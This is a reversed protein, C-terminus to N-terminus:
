VDEIWSDLGEHFGRAYGRFPRVVGEMYEGSPCFFAAGLGGMYVWVRSM